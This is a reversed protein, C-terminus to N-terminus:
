PSAVKATVFMGNVLLSVAMAYSVSQLCLVFTTATLREVFEVSRYPSFPLRM